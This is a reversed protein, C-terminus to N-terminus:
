VLREPCIDRRSCNRCKGERSHNRHVDNNIMLTRMERLKSLLLVELEESFEIEHEIGEYRLIGYPM